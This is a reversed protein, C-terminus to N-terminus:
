SRWKGSPNVGGGGQAGADGCGREPLHRARRQHGASRAPGLAPDGPRHGAALAEAAALGSALADEHFGHGAYSGAFWTAAVGQLGALRKQAALAATDFQPHDYQFRRYVLDDRPARIPNLTIFLPVRPDLSQLRNMWYTACVRPSIPRRDDCLYNWSSWAARRRPMLSKDGHLVVDNAIYRFAGLVEREAASPDELLGLAEDAHTAILVRDFLATKGLADTVTVGGATRRVHRAARGTAVTASLRDRLRRVYERSGGTVTRWQPRAGLQLLGHNDFFRVFSQVPHAGIDDLSCSWIEAGMPLLHDYLFDESYGAEELYDRLTVHAYDAKDLLAPAERYFRLLTVCCVGCARACSTASRPSFPVWARAPM